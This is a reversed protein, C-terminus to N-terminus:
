KRSYTLEMMPFEKGDMSGFLSMVVEKESKTTQVMRYLMKMGPMEWTGIMTLTKRDDSCQGVSVGASTSGSDLWYNVFEKKGNDYGTLGRGEFPKDKHTGSYVQEQWRGGLIMRITATGKSERVAGTGMAFEKVAVDWTGEASALWKHADGPTALVEMMKEMEAESPMAGGAKGDDSFAHRGFWGCAGASLVLLAILNRRM